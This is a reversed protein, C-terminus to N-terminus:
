ALVGAARRGREVSEAASCPGLQEGAVVVDPHATRGDADAEVIFRTGDFVVRAGGQRALEFAPSGAACVAVADCSIKEEPGGRKVTVSTVSNLGHAAIIEAGVALSEAGCDHVLRALRQAEPADGVIAIRTGPLVRHRRIMRSVARAAYIGPLDNNGFAPLSPHAGVAILLKKAYVKYLRENAIVALFRGGEDEFLGMVNHQLRVRPSAFPLEVGEGEPVGYASRGGAFSERELVIHEVGRELLAQSAALGSTGAGVIAIPVNVTEAPARPPAEHDPLKGLGALQRAVVAMVDQAIPVGALMEHHNLGHPFMWDTAAFMDLKASPFANQRELRMGNTAPVRCTFVNPVGDVRMLCQSCAAAFCYPGRPRHYKVSRAFLPEGAAVLSCAVPEGARAPLTQGDLDISIDHAKPDLRPM